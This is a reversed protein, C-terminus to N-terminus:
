IMFDLMGLVSMLLVLLLTRCPATVVNSPRQVSLSLLLPPLVQLTGGTMILVLVSLRSGLCIGLRIITAGRVLLTVPSSPWNLAVVSAVLRVLERLGHAVLLMCNPGNVSVPCVRLSALVAMNSPFVIATMILLLRMQVDFSM